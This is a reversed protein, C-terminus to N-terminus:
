SFRIHISKNVASAKTKMISPIMGNQLGVPKRLINMKTEPITSGPVTIIAGSSGTEFSPSAHDALALHSILLLLPIVVYYM